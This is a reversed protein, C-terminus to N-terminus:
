LLSSGHTHSSLGQPEPVLARAQRPGERRIQEEFALHGLPPHGLLHQSCLDSERNSQSWCGTDSVPLPRPHSREGVDNGGEIGTAMSPREFRPPSMLLGCELFVKTRLPNSSFESHGMLISLLGM